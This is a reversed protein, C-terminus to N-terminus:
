QRMYGISLGVGVTATSVHMLLSVYEEIAPVRLDGSAYFKWGPEYSRHATFFAPGVCIDFQTRETRIGLLALLGAAYQTPYTSHTFATGDTALMGRFGVVDGNWRTLSVDLNLRASNMFFISTLAIHAGEFRPSITRASADSQASSSDCIILLSMIAVM